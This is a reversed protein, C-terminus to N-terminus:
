RKRNVRPGSQRMQDGVAAGSTYGLTQTPYRKHFCVATKELHPSDSTRQKTRPGFAQGIGAWPSVRPKRDGVFGLASLAVQNPCLKAPGNHM